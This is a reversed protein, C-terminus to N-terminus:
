DSQLMVENSVLNLVQYYQWFSFIFISLWFIGVVLYTKQMLSYTQFTDNRSTKEIEITRSYIKLETGEEIEAAREIWSRFYTTMRVHITRMVFASTGGIVCVALVLLARSQSDRVNLSADLGALLIGNLAVYSTIMSSITVFGGRFLQGAEKYEDILDPIKRAETIDAM